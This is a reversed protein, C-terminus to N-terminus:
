DRLFSSTKLAVYDYCLQGDRRLDRDDNAPARLSKDFPDLYAIFKVGDLFPCLSGLYSLQYLVHSFIM